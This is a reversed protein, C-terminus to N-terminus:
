GEQRIREPHQVPLGAGVSGTKCPEGSIAGCVPCANLAFRLQELARAHEVGGGVPEDVVARAAEEVRRRREVERTNAAQLQDVQERLRQREVVFDALTKLMEEITM